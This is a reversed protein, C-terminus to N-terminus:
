FIFDNPKLLFQHKAYCLMKTLDAYYAEADSIKTDLAGVNHIFNM